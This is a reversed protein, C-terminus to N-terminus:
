IREVVGDSGPEPVATQVLPPLLLYYRLLFAGFWGLIAKVGMMKGQSVRALSVM